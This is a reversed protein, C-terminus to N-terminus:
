ISLGVARNAAVKHLGESPSSGDVGEKGHFTEPLPDCGVAVAKAQKLREQPQWKGSTAVRQSRQAGYLSWGENDTRVVVRYENGPIRHYVATLKQQLTEEGTPRARHRACGDGSVQLPEALPARHLLGHHGGVPEWSAAAAGGEVVDHDPRSHTRTELSVLREELRDVRASRANCTRLMQDRM